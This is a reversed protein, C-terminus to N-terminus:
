KRLQETHDIRELAKQVEPSRGFVFEVLPKGNGTIEDGPLRMVPTVDIVTEVEGERIVARTWSEGKAKTTLTLVRRGDAVSERMVVEAKAGLQEAYFAKVKEFRMPLRFSKQQETVALPKGDIAPLPFPAALTLSLLLAIM